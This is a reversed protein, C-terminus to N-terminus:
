VVQFIEVERNSYILVLNQTSSHPFNNWPNQGPAPPLYGIIWESVIIYQDGDSIAYSTAAAPTTLNNYVTERGILVDTYTFRWDSVALYSSDNPTHSGLWMIANYIYTQQESAASTNTLSNVVMQQGWSNFVLPVLTILLILAVKWLSPSRSAVSRNTRVTRSSKLRANWGFKDLLCYIGYGAIINLPVIAVISFRWAETPSINGVALSILWIFPLSFSTFEKRRFSFYLSVVTLITLAVFPVDFVFLALYSLFPMSSLESSLFTSGTVYDNQGQGLLASIFTNEVSPFVLLVSLSLLAILVLLLGFRLASRMRTTKKSALIRFIVYLAIAPFATIVSFHSMALNVFGLFLVIWTSSKKPSDFYILLCIIFFLVALIGYFNSDLGSDFVVNFWVMGTIAYILASLLGVKSNKFLREGFLYFILSGLITLISMTVQSTILDTGNVLLFAIALQYHVAEYLIGHPPYYYQELGTPGGTVGRQYSITGSITDRAEFVHDHFDGSDFAPFIPYRQFYLFIMIAQTAIIALLAYDIFVPKVPFSFKRRWILSIILATAGIWLLLYVTNLDLGLLTSDLLTIGSTRILIVFTDISLGLGFAIAVRASLGLERKWLGLLEGVGIGPLFIALLYLTYGFPASFGMKGQYGIEV